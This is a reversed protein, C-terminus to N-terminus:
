SLFFAVYNIEKIISSVRNHDHDYCYEILCFKEEM